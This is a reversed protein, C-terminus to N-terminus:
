SLLWSLGELTNGSRWKKEKQSSFISGAVAEYLKEVDFSSFTESVSLFLKIPVSLFFLFSKQKHTKHRHPHTHTGSLNSLKESLGDSICVSERKSTVVNEWMFKSDSVLQATIKM